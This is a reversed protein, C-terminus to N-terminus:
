RSPTTALASLETGARISSRLGMVEMVRHVTRKNIQVLDTLIDAIRSAIALM